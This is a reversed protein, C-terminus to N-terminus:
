DIGNAVFFAIICLASLVVLVVFFALSLRCVLSPLAAHTPFHTYSFPPVSASAASGSDLDVACSVRATGIRDM